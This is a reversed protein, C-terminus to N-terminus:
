NYRKLNKRIENLKKEFWGLHESQEIGEKDKINWRYIAPLKYSLKHNKQILKVDDPFFYESGDNKLAPNWEYDGSITLKLM